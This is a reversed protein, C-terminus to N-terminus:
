RGVSQLRVAFFHAVQDREREVVDQVTDWRGRHVVAQRERDMVYRNYPAMAANSGVIGRIQTGSGEIRRSWSRMLTNTRTYTSGNRQSPYRKVILSLYSTADEMGGRMAHDVQAPARDLTRTVEHADVTISVNM